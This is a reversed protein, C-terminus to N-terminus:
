INENETLIVSFIGVFGFFGCIKSRAKGGVHVASAFFGGFFPVVGSVSAGRCVSAAFDAFFNDFVLKWKFHVDVM